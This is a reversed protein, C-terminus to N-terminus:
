GFYMRVTGSAVTVSHARHGLPIFMNLADAAALAVGLWAKFTVTVERNTGEEYYKFNTVNADALVGIATIKKGADSGDPTFTGAGIQDDCGNAGAIQALYNM